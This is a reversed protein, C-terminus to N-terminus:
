LFLPPLSNGAIILPEYLSIKQMVISSKLVDPDSVNVVLFVPILMYVIFGAVVALLTGLPLSKAPEKLDGSMSVGALIGTVAPFFVAFATWFSVDPIKTALEQLVTESPPKGMFFSILSCIILVFIFFQSKLAFGASTYATVFVAGLAIMAIAYQPIADVIFYVSEAFGALYFSIGLAQALFLPVGVAAGAELGLSRSIMYYAGGGQVNMNTATASISLGTIFTVLSAITVILLTSFLGVNGVVWGMRLYMIVGFITMVSPIFVGSFTGFKVPLKNASSAPALNNTSKEKSAM